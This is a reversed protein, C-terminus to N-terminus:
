DPGFINHLFLHIYPNKHVDHIRIVISHGCYYNQITAVIMLRWKKSRGYRRWNWSKKWIDGTKVIGKVFAVPRLLQEPWKSEVDTEFKQTKAQPSENTDTCFLRATQISFDFDSSRSWHIQRRNSHYSNDLVDYYTYCHFVPQSNVFNDCNGRLFSGVRM